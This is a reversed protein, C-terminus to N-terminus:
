INSSMLPATPEWYAAVTHFLNSSPVQFPYSPARCVNRQNLRILPHMDGLSATCCRSKSTAPSSWYSNSILGTKDHRNASFIPMMLSTNTRQPEINAAPSPLVTVTAMNGWGHPPLASGPYIAPPPPPAPYRQDHDAKSLASKGVTTGTSM